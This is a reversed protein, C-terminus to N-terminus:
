SINDSFKWVFGRGTKQLGTCTHYISNYPVGTNRSASAVSTYEHILEGDKTFQKVPKVKPLDEGYKEFRTTVRKQISEQSQKRGNSTVSIKARTEESVRRGTNAISIKQKTEEPMPKNYNPHKNGKRMSSMELKREQSWFKGFQHNKDGTQAKSLNARHEESFVVIRGTLAKSIKQKTEDSCPPTRKTNYQCFIVRNM